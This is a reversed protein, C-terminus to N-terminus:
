KIFSELYKRLKSKPGKVPLEELTGDPGTYHIIAKDGFLGPEMDIKVITAPKGDLTGTKGV